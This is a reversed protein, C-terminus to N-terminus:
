QRTWTVDYTSTCVLAGATDYVRATSTGEFGDASEHSVAVFSASGPAGDLPCTYSRTLTCEDASWDDPADLECGELLTDADLRAVTEPIPGCSGGERETFKALFTGSRHAKSCDVAGADDSCAGTGLSLLVVLNLIPTKM